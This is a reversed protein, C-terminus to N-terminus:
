EDDSSSEDSDQGTVQRFIQYEIYEDGSDPRGNGNWDYPTYLTM